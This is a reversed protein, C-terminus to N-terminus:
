ALREAFALLEEALRRRDARDRMVTATALAPLGLAGEDGRGVVMSTVLAGYHARARDHNPVAPRGDASRAHDRRPAGSPPRDSPRALTLRDALARTRALHLALDRDGLQLWDEGGLQRTMELAHFTEDALGWGRTQHALGALTYVV